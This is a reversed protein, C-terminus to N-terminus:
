SGSRRSKSAAKARTRALEAGKAVADASARQKSKSRDPGAREPAAPGSSEGTIATSRRSNASPMTKDRPQPPVRPAFLGRRQQAGAPRLSNYYRGSAPVFALIVALLFLVGALVLPVKLAVPFSVTISLISSMGAFTQGVTALFWLGIVGWRSWYKRRWAFFAVAAM